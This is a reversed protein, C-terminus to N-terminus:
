TQRLFTAASSVDEFLILFFPEEYQAVRVPAVQINITKQEGAHKFRIANERVTEKEKKARYMATQVQSRLEKRVMKGLNLSALGSEPLVYPAINGRFILIDLNANVLLAAPVYETVLLRDVEERLLSLVDKKEVEKEGKHKMVYPTSTQLGFTVQPQARKKTYIIGRKSLPEFLYTFKGISESAGLVLFGGTKLAYHLTPLVREHLESDFYILMNRCSVFDLNSFPPDATIDQKAFVCKDRIAKTIQYKGNSVTFFRKLRSENVDTEISKPYTGQRAKEINKESVDTGFVQVEINAAKTDELYEQIAIACSYAEEGTSCGPVWIRIPEKPSRNKMLEPFVAEKLLAFTEPERFFSTVGILMDDYLANLENPHARLFEIYEAMKEIHNIVMRRTVRRNVVTEKYHSFDVHFASRLLSFIANLGTEQKAEHEIEEKGKEKAENLEVLALQPNKAIKALEQAIQQPSL